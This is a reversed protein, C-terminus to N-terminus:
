NNPAGNDLWSQLDNVQQDTLLVRGAPPMRNSSGRNNIARARIRNEQAKIQNYTEMTPTQGNAAHCGSVACNNQVFPQITMSFSVVTMGTTDMMTTDNMTTDNMPIVPAAFLEEENESECSLMTGFIGLIIFGYLIKM